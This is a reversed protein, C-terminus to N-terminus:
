GALGLCIAGRMGVLFKIVKRANNKARTWELLGPLGVVFTGTVGEADGNGSNSVKIWGDRMDLLVENTREAGPLYPTSQYGPLGSIGMALTITFSDSLDADTLNNMPTGDAAYTPISFRRGEKGSVIEEPHISHYRREAWEPLRQTSQPMPVGQGVGDRDEMYARIQARLVMASAEDKWYQNRAVRVMQGFNVLARRLAELTANSASDPLLVARDLGRWQLVRGSPCNKGLAPVKYPKPTYTADLAKKVAERADHMKRAYAVFPNSADNRRCHACKAKDAETTREARKTRTVTLKLPKYPYRTPYTNQVMEDASDTRAPEPLHTGSTVNLGFARMLLMAQYASKVDITPIVGFLVDAVSDGQFAAIWAEQQVETEPTWNSDFLASLVKMDAEAFMRTCNDKMIRRSFDAVGYVDARHIGRHMAKRALVATMQRDNGRAKEEESQTRQETQVEEGVVATADGVPQEKENTRFLRMAAAACLKGIAFSHALPDSTDPFAPVRSEVLSDVIDQFTEGDAIRDLIDTIVMGYVDTAEYGHSRLKRSRAAVDSKHAIEAMLSKNGFLFEDQVHQLRRERRERLKDEPSPIPQHTTDM